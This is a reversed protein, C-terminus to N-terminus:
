VAYKFRVSKKVSEIPLSTHRKFKDEIQQKIQQYEEKYEELMFPINLCLVEHILLLTRMTNWHDIVYRIFESSKVSYNIILIKFATERITQDEHTLAFDKFYDFLDAHIKSLNELASKIIIRSNSFDAMDQMSQVAEKKSIKGNKYNNYIEESM